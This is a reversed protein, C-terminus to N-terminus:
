RPSDASTGLSTEPQIVKEYTIWERAVHMGAREYLRVAGTLSQADVELGVRIQGRSYFTAFAHRLLAMGLGSRRFRRRVGLSQVFGMKPRMQCLAAGAVVDCATTVFQLSPDFADGAFHWHAYEEFPLPVFGWHDAFAEQMAEYVSHEDQGPALARVSVGEPWRPPDPPTALEIEMRLMRRVEVFGVAEVLARAPHNGAIIAQRLEVREGPSRKAAWNQARAEIHALLYSGLGRGLHEPSVAAYGWVRAPGQRFVDAEAVLKGTADFILQADEPLNVSPEEWAARMEALATEVAGFAARDVASYLAHVAPLDALTAGRSSFGTPLVLGRDAKSLTDL